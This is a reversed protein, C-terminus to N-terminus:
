INQTYDIRNMMLEIYWKKKKYRKLRDYIRHLRNQKDDTRHVM